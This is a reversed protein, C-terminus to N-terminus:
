LFFRLIVEHGFIPLSVHYRSQLLCTRLHFLRYPIGAANRVSNGVYRQRSLVTGLSLGPLVQRWSNWTRNIVDDRGYVRQRHRIRLEGEDGKKENQLKGM